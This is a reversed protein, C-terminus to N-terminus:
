GRERRDLVLVHRLPDVQLRLDLVVRRQDLRELLDEALPALRGLRRSAGVVRAAAVATRAVDRGRGPAKAPQHVLELRQEALGKAALRAGCAPALPRPTTSC